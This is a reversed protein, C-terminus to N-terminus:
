LEPGAYTRTGTGAFTIGFATYTWTFSVAMSIDKRYENQAVQTVTLTVTGTTITANVSNSGSRLVCPQNAALEFSMASDDKKKTGKLTCSGTDSNAVTVLYADTKGRTIVLAGTGSAATTNATPSTQTDTGTITFNYSGLSQDQACGVLAAAAFVLVFTKM